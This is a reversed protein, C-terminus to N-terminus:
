YSCSFSIVYGISIYLIYHLPVSYTFPCASRVLEDHGDEQDRFEKGRFVQAYSLKLRAVKGSKGVEFDGVLWEKTWATPNDRFSNGDLFIDRAVAQGTVAAFLHLGYPQVRALRPDSSDVPASTDGGPRIISNGFDIPINWDLRAKIEDNEYTYVNGAGAGVHTM